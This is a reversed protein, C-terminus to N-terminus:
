ELIFCPSHISILNSKGLWSAPHLEHLKTCALKSPDGFAQHNSNDNNILDMIRFYIFSSGSILSINVM